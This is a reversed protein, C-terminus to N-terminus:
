RVQLREISFEANRLIAGRSHELSTQDSARGRQCTSPGSESAVQRVLIQELPLTQHEFVIDDVNSTGLEQPLTPAELAQTDAVRQPSRTSTRTLLPAPWIATVVRLRVPSNRTTRTLQVIASPCLSQECHCDAAQLRTWSCDHVLDGEPVASWDSAAPLATPSLM